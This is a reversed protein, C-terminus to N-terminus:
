FDILYLDGFKHFIKSLNNELKINILTTPPSPLTLAFNFTTCNHLTQTSAQVEKLKQSANAIKNM